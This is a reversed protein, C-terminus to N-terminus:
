TRHVSNRLILPRAESSAGRNIIHDPFPYPEEGVHYYSSQTIVERNCVYNYGFMEECIIQCM